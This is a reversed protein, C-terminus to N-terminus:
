KSENLENFADIAVLMVAYPILPRLSGMAVLPTICLAAATIMNSEKPLPVALQLAKRSGHYAGFFRISCHYILRICCLLM